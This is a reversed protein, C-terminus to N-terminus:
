EGWSPPKKRGSFTRRTVRPASAEGSDSLRSSEIGSNSGSESSRRKDGSRRFSHFLGHKKKSRKDKESSVDDGFSSSSDRISREASDHGSPQDQTTQSLVKDAPEFYRVDSDNEAESHRSSRPASSRSKPRGSSPPGSHKKEWKRYYYWGTLSVYTAAILTNKRITPNFVLVAVFAVIIGLFWLWLAM